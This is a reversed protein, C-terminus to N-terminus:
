RSGYRLNTATDLLNDGPRGIEDLWYPAVQMLGLEGNISVAYRDFSSEVDIVALVLEPPLDVRTAELHVLKLIEIREDPNGVLDALRSSMDKLWADADLRDTFSNRGSAAENLANGLVEDEPVNATIRGSGEISTPEASSSQYNEKLDVIRRLQRLLEQSEVGNVSLGYDRQFAEIAVKTKRGYIGDAVGPSYGLISLAKQIDTTLQSRQVTPRQQPASQRVLSVGDWANAIIVSRYPEIERKARELAGSRYRYSGCRNNYDSVIGNFADFQSSSNM